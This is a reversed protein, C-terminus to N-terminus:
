GDSAVIIIDKNELYHSNTEASKPSDGNTGIQYPFNFSHVQDKSKFVEKLGGEKYRVILYGSDGINATYIKDLKEDLLILCCTSSGIASTRYAAKVILEKAGEENFTFEKADYAKGLRQWSTKVNRLANQFLSCPWSRSQEM